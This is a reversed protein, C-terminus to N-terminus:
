DDPDEGEAQSPHGAVQPDTHEGADSRDEGEAQSPHGVPGDADVAAGDASTRSAEDREWRLSASAPALPRDPREEGEELQEEIFLVHADTLLAARALAEAANVETGEQGYADASTVAVWPEASLALLTQGADQMRADLMLTEVQAQQLAAVVASTGSAGSSADGAAARDRAATLADHQAQTLTEDITQELASDDSGAARTEADIEVVRESAQGGLRELLLQRARVDGTVFVHDPRRERVIRDVAEAVDSQNHQWVDEAHRQYNAHSWGGAQVKTLQEDDGEVTQTAEPETQGVRAVTIQAGERDTEVVVIRREAALHRLLPVVQPFPGHGCREEGRRPEAFSEDMVVQGDRILLWRASPSAQETGSSLARVAADIDGDPVGADGLRGELSRMRSEIAGPPEGTPGDTYLWTWTGGEALATRLEATRM